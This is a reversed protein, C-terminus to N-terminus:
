RWPRQPRLPFDFLIEKATIVPNIVLEAVRKLAV